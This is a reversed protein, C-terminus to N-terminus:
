NQQTFTPSNFSAQNTSHDYVDSISHNPHRRCQHTDTAQDDHSATQTQTAMTHQTQVSSIVMKVMSLSDTISEEDVKIKKRKALVLDVSDLEWYLRDADLIAQNLM